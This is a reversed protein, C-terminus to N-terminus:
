SDFSCYLSCSQARKVFTGVAPVQRMVRGAGVVRPVLGRATLTNIAEQLDKGRCDPVVVLHAPAKLNRTTYLTVVTTTGSYSGPMPNQNTVTDGDGVVKFEINQLELVRQAEARPMGCLLPVESREAPNQQPQHQLIQEAFELNPHAIIQSVIQHFAPAAAMGGAEGAAPESIVIGCLLVPNEVSAFGIFSAHYRNDSYSGMERDYIQSTGTKGAVSVGGVAAREGTGGDVVGKLLLTLRKAVSESVVRRIPKVACSDVVVGDPRVVRSHIRPQMLVGDHAVAGFVNVMQLLTTSVEHGMAMTVRTRGSWERVPHVIGREEGPLAIGSVEGIGFDRTFRYLDANGIKDAIKAFCVNSSYAMAQSFSIFGYPRHDRIAQDYIVYTGNNGYLIDTENFLRNELAAAATILKFTSGPEYNRSICPNTRLELSYRSAINPNFGPENAMALINGTAPDMVIGMAGKAGLEAIAQKLVNQVIRQIDLDITLYVNAGAVSKKSPLNYMHYKSPKGSRSHADRQVISWGDEGRLVGDFALEAGGLGYGDRGIFGITSAALEGHPYIRSLATKGLETSDASLLRTDVDVKEAPDSALVRGKRDLISGRHAKLVLRQQSQMKSRNAYHKGQVLQIIALRGVVVVVGLYILVVVFILRAKIIEM